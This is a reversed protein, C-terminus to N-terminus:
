IFEAKCRLAFLKRLWEPRNDIIEKLKLLSRKGIRRDLVAFMEVLPNDSFLSAQVDQNRYQKLADTFEEDTYETRDLITYRNLLTWYEEWYEMRGFPDPNTKYGCAIFYSNVTEWSFRKFLQDDVYVEFLCCGDMGKYTTCNYRIRQSLSDALMEDELYKRMGSWSSLIKPM